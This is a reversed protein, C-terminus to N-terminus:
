WGKWKAYEALFDDILAQRDLSAIAFPRAIGGRPLIEATPRDSQRPRTLQAMSFSLAHYVRGRIAYRFEEEGRYRVILVAYYRQHDILAERGHQRLEVALDSFAPLVVTEIFQAVAGRATDFRPDPPASQRQDRRGLISGLRSRWDGTRGPAAAGQGATEMEPLRRRRRREAHLGRYVSWCM